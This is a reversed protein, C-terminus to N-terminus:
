EKDNSDTGEPESSQAEPENSKAEASGANDSSEEAKGAEAKPAEAKDAEAKDPEAKDAEAKASDSKEPTRSSDDSSGYRSRHGRSRDYRRDSSDDRGGRTDRPILVASLEELYKQPDGDFRVTLNRIYQENLMFHRDLLPLVSTPAEFIFSAYYGQTLGNIPYALRRTGMHDEHVIKGSNDTIVSAVDKVHNDITADDTQPNVIFTTEYFRM